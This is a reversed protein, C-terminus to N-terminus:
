TKPILRFDVIQTPKRKQQYKKRVNLVNILMLTLNKHECLSDKFRRCSIIINADKELIDGTRNWFRLIYAVNIM